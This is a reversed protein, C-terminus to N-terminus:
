LSLEDVHVLLVDFLLLQSLRRVQRDLIDDRMGLRQV